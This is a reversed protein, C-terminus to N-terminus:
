DYVVEAFYLQKLKEIGYWECSTDVECGAPININQGIFMGSQSFELTFTVDRRDAIWEMFEQPLSAWTGMYLRVTQGTKADYIQQHKTRLMEEAASLSYHEGVAGCIICSDVEVGDREETPKLWTIRNWVHEHPVFEREDGPTAEQVFALNVGDSVLRGNMKVLYEYHTPNGLLDVDATPGVLTAFNNISDFYTKTSAHVYITSGESVNIDIDSSFAGNSTNLVGIKTSDGGLVVTPTNITIVYDVTAALASIHTFSIGFVFVCAAFICKVVLIKSLILDRM